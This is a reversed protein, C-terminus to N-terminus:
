LTDTDDLDTAIHVIVQAMERIDLVKKSSDQFDCGKILSDTRLQRCLSFSRVKTDILCLFM